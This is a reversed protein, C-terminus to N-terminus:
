WGGLCLAAILLGFLAAAGALDDLTLSSAWALFAGGRGAANEAQTPGPHGRGDSTGVVPHLTNKSRYAISAAPRASSINSRNESSCISMKRSHSFTLRSLSSIINMM